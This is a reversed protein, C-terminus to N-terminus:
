AGYGILKYKVATHKRLKSLIHRHKVGYLTRYQSTDLQWKKDRLYDAYYAISDIDYRKEFYEHEVGKIVGHRRRALHYFCVYDGVQWERDKKSM